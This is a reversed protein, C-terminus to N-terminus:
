VIRIERSHYFSISVCKYRWYNRPPGHVRRVMRMKPDGISEQSWLHILMAFTPGCHAALAMQFRNNEISFIAFHRLWIHQATSHQAAWCALDTFNTQYAIILLNFTEILIYWERSLRDFTLLGMDVDLWVEFLLHTCITRTVRDCQFTQKPKVDDGQALGQGHKQDVSIQIRHKATQTHRRARCPSPWNSTLTICNPRYKKEIFTLSQPELEAIRTRRHHVACLMTYGFRAIGFM